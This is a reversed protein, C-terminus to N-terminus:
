NTKPQTIGDGSNPNFEKLTQALETCLFRIQDERKIRRGNFVTAEKMNSFFAPIIVQKGARSIWTGGEESEFCSSALKKEMILELALRDTWPRFPEICDFVFTPENYEDAHLFGLQPDLGSAIVAGEVVSYLMGYLYNITANFPDDAPQRSRKEFPMDKGMARSLAEWYYKSIVADLNMLSSKKASIDNGEIPDDLQRRMKETALHMESKIAPRRDALWNLNECQEQTKMGFIKFLFTVADSHNAYLVQNRRISSISGFYSSWMRASPKGQRNYILIPINNEVALLIAASSLTASKLLNISSIRSPAISRENPGSIIKFRFDERDISAGYTDLILHM